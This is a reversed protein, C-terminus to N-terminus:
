LVESTSRDQIQIETFFLTPVRAVLVHAHVLAVCKRQMKSWIHAAGHM